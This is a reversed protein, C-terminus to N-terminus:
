PQNRRRKEHMKNFIRQGRGPQSWPCVALCIGCGQHATFYPVCRDFDVYWKKMGRVMQKEELIAHPPCANKCLKCRRCFEEVGIDVDGDEEMPLDTLVTALRLNSGLEKTVLSGHRGLQGLGANIAIPIHLVQAVDLGAMAVAPWGLSRIYESLRTAVCTVDYYGLLVAESASPTPADKLKEWDMAVGVSIATEHPVSQGEMLCSETVKTVGVVHAGVDMAYAKLTSATEVPDKFVQRTRAVPGGAHRKEWFTHMVYFVDTATGLTQFLRELAAWEIQTKGSSHFVESARRFGTEGFGNIENGSRPLHRYAFPFIPKPYRDRRM